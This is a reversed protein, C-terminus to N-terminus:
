QKLYENARALLVPKNEVSRLEGTEDDFQGIEYLCYDDAHKALRSGPEQVNDQFTRLATLNNAQFFPQQYMGMKTDLVAYMQIKM